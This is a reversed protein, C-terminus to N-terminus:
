SWGSGVGRLSAWRLAVTGGSGGSGGSGAFEVADSEVYRPYVRATLTEGDGAFVEVSSRDLLVDLRLVGDADPTVRTSYAARTGYGSRATDLTLTGTAKDYRLETAEAASAHLRVTVTDATTANVDIAARLRAVSGRGLRWPVDGVTRAGSRVTTGTELSALEAVPRAGLGGDARLFLERTVSQAGAWGNVRTPEKANWDGLWAIMLQRGRDDRYVQGAYTDGGGDLVGRREPTFVHGDYSGVAYRQVSRGGENVSTLLVWKGDLPFLSPCEWMAGDTGDGTALVGDYTWTRLDASAYLQVKGRDGDGSGVAMKWGGAVPDRFLYPDRFGAGSGAPAAAVVPNAALPTFTVGDTSTVMEVTEPTAGPRAATDTFRTYAAYLTGGSAVASGSFIGSVDGPTAPPDPRLAVPLERWHVADPSDAHAWHMPGWKPADPHYQSFLHHRGGFQVLGNPDNIWGQYPTYHFQPRLPDAAYDHAAPQRAQGLARFTLGNDDRTAATGTRVDDLNLHGWGGQKDDVVELHVQEGAWRATDWLVRIYAEDDPGTQRALEAGDRDRVLAVYLKEPDWGGAVLFSLARGATFSSSRLRGTADDGAAAFGWLHRDGHQSFPGGWYDHQASVAADSFATGSVVTWGTLDGTEFDPNLPATPRPAAGATPALLAALTAATAILAPATWRSM